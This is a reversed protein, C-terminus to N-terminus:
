PLILAQEAMKAPAMAAMWAHMDQEWSREDAHSIAKPESMFPLEDAPVWVPQHDIMGQAEVAPDLGAALAEYATTHVWFQVAKVWLGNM